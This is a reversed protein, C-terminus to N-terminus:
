PHVEGTQKFYLTGVHPVSTDEPKVCQQRLGTGVKLSALFPLLSFKVMGKPDPCQHTHYGKNLFVFCFFRQGALSHKSGLITPRHDATESISNRGELYPNPRSLFGMRRIRTQRSKAIHLQGPPALRYSISAAKGKQLSIIDSSRLQPGEEYLVESLYSPLFLPPQYYTM